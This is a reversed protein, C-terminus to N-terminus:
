VVVESKNKGPSNIHAINPYNSPHTLGTLGLQKTYIFISLSNSWQILFMGWFIFISIDVYTRISLVQGGNHYTYEKSDYMGETFYVITYAIMLILDIIVM